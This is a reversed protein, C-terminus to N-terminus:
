CTHLKPEIELVVFVFLCFHYNLYMFLKYFDVRIFINFIPCSYLKFFM